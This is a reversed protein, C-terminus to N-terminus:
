DFSEAKVFWAQLEEPLLDRDSGTDSSEFFAAIAPFMQEQGARDLTHVFWVSEAVSKGPPPLQHTLLMTNSTFCYQSFAFASAQEEDSETIFDAWDNTSASIEVQASESPKTSSPSSVSDALGNPDSSRELEALKLHVVPDSREREPRRLWLTLTDWARGADCTLPMAIQRCLGDLDREPAIEGAILVHLDKEQAQVQISVNSQELERQFAHQIDTSNM